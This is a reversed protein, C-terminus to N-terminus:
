RRREGDGVPQHAAADDDGHISHGVEEPLQGLAYNARLAWAATMRGGGRERKEVRTVSSGGMVAAWSM